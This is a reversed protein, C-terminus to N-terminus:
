ERNTQSQNTLDVQKRGVSLIQTWGNAQLARVVAGGVMGSSGLVAIPSTRDLEETTFKM